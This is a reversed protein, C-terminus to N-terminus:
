KRTKEERIQAQSKDATGGPAKGGYAPCTTHKNQTSAKNGDLKNEPKDVDFQKAQTQAEKPSQNGFAGVGQNMGAQFDDLGKSMKEKFDKKPTEKTTAAPKDKKDGFLGKAPSSTGEGFGGFGKMKYGM